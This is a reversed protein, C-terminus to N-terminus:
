ALPLRQPCPSTNWGNSALKTRGSFLARRLRRRASLTSMAPDRSDSVVIVNLKCPALPDFAEKLESSFVIKDGDLLALNRGILSKIGANEKSDIPPSGDVLVILASWLYGRELM